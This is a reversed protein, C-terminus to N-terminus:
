VAPPISACFLKPGSDSATKAAIFLTRKTKLPAVQVQYPKQNPKPSVTEANRRSEATMLQCSSRTAGALQGTTLTIAQASKALWTTLV